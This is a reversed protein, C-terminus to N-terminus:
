IIDPPAPRKITKARVKPLIHPPPLPLVAGLRSALANQIEEQDWHTYDKETHQVVCQATAKDLYHRLEGMFEPPAILILREYQMTTRGHLLEDALMKAFLSAEHEKPSEDRRRSSHGNGASQMYGPRDTVLEDNKQRSEPHTCDRLLTMISDAYGLHSYLKAHSANAVLIWYRDTMAGGLNMSTEHKIIKLKSQVFGHQSDIPRIVTIPSDHTHTSPSSQKATM